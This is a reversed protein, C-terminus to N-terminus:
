DWGFCLGFAAANREEASETYPVEVPRPSVRLHSVISFWPLYDPHSEWRVGPQIPVGHRILPPVKVACYNCWLDTDQYANSAKNCMSCALYYFQQNFDTVKVTGEINILQAKEVSSPLNIIKVPANSSSTGATILLRQMTTMPPLQRIKAANAACWSQLAITEPTQANLHLWIHGTYCTHPRQDVIKVDVVHSNNAPKREGVLTANLDNIQHLMAIPTLAFQISRQTLGDVKIEQVPTRANIILQCNQELFRFREVTLNIAANTISYVHFLKLTNEFVRIDTGFVTAQIKTGEIDQLVFRQYQSSGKTSKRPISKEIVIAEITYNRATLTIERLRLINLAMQVLSANICDEHSGKAIVPLVQRFDGGLVVVKGGFLTDNETIDRLLSDLVEISQKNAMSAEDWIILATQRLLTALGTQKGVKCSLKGNTAIPIKFRSHATRGNPLISAAVGSTATALAIKQQSQVTALVARYLFTKGTGGPGDIFFSKSKTNFVADLIENYAMTQEANLVTFSRLDEESIQLDTEDQIERSILQHDIQIDLLHSLHYDRLSKGMSQLESNLASLLQQRAQDKTLKQLSIYDEIMDDEFKFFLETPNAPNCYILITCFLQRLSIPMQYACAEQMCKENSDDADLLGHAIAAEGFSNYTIGEVTQLYAYSTPGPVHTLLLRLYYREGERPNATVIRGIVEKQKREHWIRSQGDWVYEEPFNQYLLKKEKARQHNANM